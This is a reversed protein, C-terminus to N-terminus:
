MGWKERAYRIGVHLKNNALLIKGLAPVNTKQKSLQEALYNSLEAETLPLEYEILALIHDCDSDYLLEINFGNSNDMCDFYGQWVGNIDVSSAVARGGQAYIDNLFEREDIFTRRALSAMYEMSDENNLLHYTNYYGDESKVNSVFCAMGHCIGEEASISDINAFLNVVSERDSAGGTIQTMYSEALNFKIYDAKNDDVTSCAVEDEGSIDSKMLEDVSIGMLDAIAIWVIPSDPLREGKEWMSISKNNYTISEDMEVFKDNLMMAFASQTLGNSKRFIRINEKFRLM